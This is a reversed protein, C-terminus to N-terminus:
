YSSPVVSCTQESVLQTQEVSFGSPQFKGFKMATPSYPTWFSGIVAAILLIIIIVLGIKLCPNLRTKKM